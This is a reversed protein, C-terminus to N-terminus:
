FIIFRLSINIFELTLRVFAIIVVFPKPYNYILHFFNTYFTMNYLLLFVYVCSIFLLTTELDNLMLLKRLVDKISREKHNVGNKLMLMMFLNGNKRILKMPMKSNRKIRKQYNKGCKAM